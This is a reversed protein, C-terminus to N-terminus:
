HFKNLQNLQFVHCLRAYLGDTAATDGRASLLLVVTSGGVFTALSVWTSISAQQKYM